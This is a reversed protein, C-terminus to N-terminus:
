NKKFITLSDSQKLKESIVNWVDAAARALVRNGYNKTKINTKQLLLKTSNRL